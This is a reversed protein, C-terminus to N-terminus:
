PCRRAFSVPSGGNVFMGDRILAQGTDVLTSQVVRMGNANFELTEDTRQGNQERWNAHDNRTWIRLTGATLAQAREIAHEYLGDGAGDFRRRLQGDAGVFWITYWNSGSRPSACDSSWTGLLGYRQVVELPSQALTPLPLALVVFLIWRAIM